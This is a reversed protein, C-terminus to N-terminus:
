VLEEQMEKWYSTCEYRNTLNRSPLMECRGVSPNQANKQSIM